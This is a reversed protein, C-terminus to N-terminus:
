KECGPKLQECGFVDPNPWGPGYIPKSMTKKLCEELERAAPIKHQKGAAIIEKLGPVFEAFWTRPFSLNAQDVYFQAMMSAAIRAQSASDGLAAWTYDISNTFPRYDKGQLAELVERAKCFLMKGPSIWKDTYLKIEGKYQRKYNIVFSESHCTSCVKKMKENLFNQDEGTNRLSVNHTAGMKAVASMHCTACTPAANYDVGAIWQRAELNMKSKNTTYNIGHRSERYIAFIYHSSSGTHCGSCSEPQRAQVKSFGHAMHCATCNGRSDDPNIRGMGTNPWVAPDLEGGKNVKVKYGHCKWCGNVGAASVGGPFGESKFERNGTVHDAYLIGIESKMVRGATLSHASQSFQETEDEHCKRCDLPSVIVSITTGFHKIRDKDPEAAAHCEYCGVDVAAHRSDSWQGCLGPTIKKHCAICQKSAASLGEPLLAGTGAFSVAALLFVMVLSM